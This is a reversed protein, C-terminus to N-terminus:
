TVLGGTQPTYREGMRSMLASRGRGARHQARRREIARHFAWEVRLHTIADQLKRSPRARSELCSIAEPFGVAIQKGFGRTKPGTGQGILQYLRQPSLGALRALDPITISNQIRPRMPKNHVMM